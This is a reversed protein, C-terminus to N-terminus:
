RIFLLVLLTLAINVGVMVKLVAVDREVNRLWDYDDAEDAAKRATDARM